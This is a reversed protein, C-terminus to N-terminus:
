SPNSSVQYAHVLHIAIAANAIGIHWYPNFFGFDTLLHRPSMDGFADYGVCGWLICFLTMVAVSVLKAKRMTKAESPQSTITDKMIGLALKITSYTFSMVAATSLWCLKNFDQIQSWVIEIAVFM